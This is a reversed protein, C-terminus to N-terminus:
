HAFSPRVVKQRPASNSFSQRIDQIEEESLLSMAHVAEAGQICLERLEENEEMEALQEPTAHLFLSFNTNLRDAMRQTQANSAHAAAGLAVLLGVTLLNKSHFVHRCMGILYTYLPIKRDIYNRILVRMYESASLKGGNPVVTSVQDIIRLFEARQKPTVAKLWPEQLLQVRLANREAQPRTKDFLGEYKALAADLDRPYSVMMTYHAKKMDFRNQLKNMDKQLERIRDHLTQITQNKVEIKDNAVTLQGELLRNRKRLKNIEDTRQRIEHRRISNTQKTIATTNAFMQENAAATNALMQEYQFSINKINQRYLLHQAALLGVTVGGVGLLLIGENSIWPAKEIDEQARKQYQALTQPQDEQQAPGASLLTSQSLLCISLLVASLKRTLLM